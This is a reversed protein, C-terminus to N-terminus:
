RISRRSLLLVACGSVRLAEILLRLAIFGWLGFFILAPAGLLLYGFCLGAQLKILPHQLKLALLNQELPHATVSLASLLILQLAYSGVTAHYDRSLAVASIFGYGALLACGGATGIAVVLIFWRRTSIVLATNHQMSAEKYIAPRFVTSLVSTLLSYPRSILSNGAVYPAAIAPPLLATLFFRDIFTFFWGIQGMAGIQFLYLLISNHVLTTPIARRVFLQLHSILVFTLILTKSITLALLTALVVDRTHIYLTTTLFLTALPEAAISCAQTLRMEYAACAGVAISRAIEISVYCLFLLATAVPNSRLLSIAFIGGVVAASSIAIPAFRPLPAASARLTERFAMGQARFYFAAQNLPASFWSDLLATGAVIVAYRAFDAPTMIETYIRLSAIGALALAAQSGFALLGPALRLM